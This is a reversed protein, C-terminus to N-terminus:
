RVEAAHTSIDFHDFALEPEPAALGLAALGAGDLAAHRPAFVTTARSVPDIQAPDVGLKQAILVAAQAYTMDRAATAHIIGPRRQQAVKRLVEVAFSLSVPAMALDHYPNICQGLRLDSVWKEFLPMGPAIVKGVRVIAAQQGLQLLQREAEAKQRGYATQPNYPHTAAAFPTEGDLVLNTSVFIVFTGAAALQRGLQITHLVNIQATADPQNECQAQSTVAACLFVIDIPVPPLHWNEASESLDLFLCQPAVNNPRRTTRWVEVGDNAYAAALGRAIGGEAGIILVRGPMRNANAPANMRKIGGEQRLM